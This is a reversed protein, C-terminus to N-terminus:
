AYFKPSLNCESIVNEVKEGNFSIQHYFDIPALVKRVFSPHLIFYSIFIKCLFSQPYESKGGTFDYCVRISHELCNIGLYMPIILLSRVRVVALSSIRLREVRKGFADRRSRFSLSIICRFKDIHRAPTLDTLRAM